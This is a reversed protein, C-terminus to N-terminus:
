DLLVFLFLFHQATDGTNGCYCSDPRAANRALQIVRTKGGPDLNARGPWRVFM